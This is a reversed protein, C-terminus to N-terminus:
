TTSAALLAGDTRGVGNALCHEIWGRMDAEGTVRGAEVAWELGHSYSFAGTPFAPSTWATLRYLGDQDTLITTITDTMLTIIIM